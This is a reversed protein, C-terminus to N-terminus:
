RAHRLRLKWREGLKLETGFVYRAVISRRRERSAGDHLNSSNKPQADPFSSPGVDGSLSATQPSMHTKTVDNRRRAKKGTTSKVASRESNISAESPPAVLPADNSPAQPSEHPATDSDIVLGAEAYTSPQTGRHPESVNTAVVETPKTPKNGCSAGHARRRSPEVEPLSWPCSDVLSPLIRGSPRIPDFEFAPNKAREAERRGTQDVEYVGDHTADRFTEGLKPTADMFTPRGRRRRVEVIFSQPTHRM